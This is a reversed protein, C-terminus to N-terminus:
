QAGREVFEFLLTEPNIAFFLREGRVSYKRQLERTLCLARQHWEDMRRAFEGGSGRRGGAGGLSGGLCPKEEFLAEVRRHDDRRLIM